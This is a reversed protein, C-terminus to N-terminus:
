HVYVTCLSETRIVQAVNSVYGRTTTSTFTHQAENSSQQRMQAQLEAEQAARASSM